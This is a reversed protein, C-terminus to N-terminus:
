DPKLGIKQAIEGWQNMESRVFRAFEDASNGVPIAGQTALKESMETKAPIDGMGRFRNVKM